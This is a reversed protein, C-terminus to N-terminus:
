DCYGTEIFVTNGHRYASIPSVSHTVEFNRDPVVIQMNESMEKADEKSYGRSILDKRYERQAKRVIQNFLKLTM